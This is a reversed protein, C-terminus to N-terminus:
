NISLVLTASSNGLVDKLENETKNTIEGLKTYSWSNSGYFISIQNGQYLMVDGAKTKIQTDNKPLSFGLNGVQEFSGYENTNVTIDGQKLKEILAKTAENQELKMNLTENGVKIKIEEVENDQVKGEINANTNETALNETTETNKNEKFGLEELWKITQEKGEETRATTGRVPLGELITSNSLKSEIEKYTGSNGSGEHTNFPIITKGDFNNNDLFGQVVMPIDGDWIPYGIFIIDYDEVDIDGVYNIKTKNRQEEQAEKVLEDYPTPYTKDPVIEFEDANLYNIIYEAMMKTNGKEVNGVSYNEGSHSFYTVLVKGDLNVDKNIEQNGETMNEIKENQPKSLSKITIYTGIAFVVLIVIIIAVIKKKDM